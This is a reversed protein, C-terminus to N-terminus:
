ASGLHSGALITKPVTIGIQRSKIQIPNPIVVSNIDLNGDYNAIVDDSPISRCRDNASNEGLFLSTRKPDSASM